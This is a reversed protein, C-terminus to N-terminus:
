RRNRRWALTTVLSIALISILAWIYSEYGIGKEGGQESVESTTTNVPKLYSISASISGLGQSFWGKFRDTRFAEINSQSYLPIYPLDEAIIEQLRYAIKVKEERPGCAVFEDALKDLEPNYYGMPNYGDKIIQSSHFFDRLYDPLLSLRWGLVYVDFNWEKFVRQTITAFSTPQATVPVGVERWWEQIRRSTEFRLPDYDAPPTLIDFEPVKEGNPMILGKGPIIRDGEIRPEVEWSFGAKKLLEVAKRVREARSMGQGEDGYCKVNPNYWAKNGPPVVTCLYEGLGQLIRDRIFHKDILYAMAQRFEKIRFPDKRLNFALYRIGNEPTSIMSVNENEKLLKVYGPQIPWWIYDIDGKDLALIAADTTRYIKYLIGDVFPGITLTIKKEEFDAYQELGPRSSLFERMEELTQFTYNFKYGSFYYNPNRKIFIYSGRKWEGFVFPGASIPKENKYETLYNFPDESRKAEDVIKEWKKKQVIISMLTGEMFTVRCEKLKFKVTYNDLAEVSEVFEWSSWYRPIKFEMMIKATFVVDHATLETGDEWKIGKKIHVIAEKYDDSFEPYGDAVWPIVEFTLPKYAYLSEYFYGIVNWTWVDSAKFPNLTKPEDQMGVKLLVSNMGYSPEQTPSLTFLILSSLIAVYLLRM